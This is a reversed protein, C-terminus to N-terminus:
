LHSVVPPLMVSCTHTVATKILICRVQPEGDNWNISDNMIHLRHELDASESYHGVTVYSIEGDSSAQWNIIDYYAEIDGDDFFIEEEENPVKFRVNKLYYM